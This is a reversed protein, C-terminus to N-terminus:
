LQTAIASLIGLILTGMLGGGVLIITQQLSDFRTEAREFQREMGDFRKDVREFQRDVQAFGGDMHKVLDDMRDDTWTQRM